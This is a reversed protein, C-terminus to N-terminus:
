CERQHRDDHTTVLSLTSSLLSDPETRRSEELYSGILQLSLIDIYTSFSNSICLESHDCSIISLQTRFQDKQHESKSKWDRTRREASTWNWDALRNEWTMVFYNLSFTKSKVIMWPVNNCHDFILSFFPTLSEWRPWSRLRTARTLELQRLKTSSNWYLGPPYQMPQVSHTVEVQNNQLTLQIEGPPPEASGFKFEWKAVTMLFAFSWFTGFSLM